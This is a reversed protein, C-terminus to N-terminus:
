EFSGGQWGQLHGVGGASATWHSHAQAAPRQLDARGGPLARTHRLLARGRAAWRDLRRVVEGEWRQHSRRGGQSNRLWPAARWSIQRVGLRWPRVRMAAGRRGRHAPHAYATNAQRCRSGRLAGQPASRSRRRCHVSPPACSATSHWNSSYLAMTPQCAAATPPGGPPPRATAGQSPQAAIALQARPLLAASTRMVTAQAVGM